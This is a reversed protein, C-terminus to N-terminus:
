CGPGDCDSCQQKDKELGHRHSRGQYPLASPLRSWLASTVWASFVKSKSTPCLLVNSSWATGGQGACETRRESTGKNGNGLSKREARKTVCTSSGQSLM